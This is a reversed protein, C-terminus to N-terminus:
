LIQLAKLAENSKVIRTASGVPQPSELTNGVNNIYQGGYTTNFKHIPTFSCNVDLIQPLEGGAGEANPGFQYGNNWSLGISSFFGTQNILYDGITVGVFNGRMYSSGVYTPALSGALLNLKDYIPQIENKSLAAVKFSFSIQRGFGSYTYFDEARGIYKFSNWNASYDDGFSDLFARFKLITVQPQANQTTGPSIIKFNFKILDDNEKNDPVDEGLSYVIPVAATISDYPKTKDADNFGVGSLTLNASNTNTKPSTEGSYYSGEGRTEWTGKEEKPSNEYELGETTAFARSKAGPTQSESFYELVLTSNNAEFDGTKEIVGQTTIQGDQRRNNKYEIHGRVGKLYGLKGSFGEVFHLGTGSVPVQALTSALMKATGGLGRLVKGAGTKERNASLINQEVVNLMAQNAVFKLAAPTSTLLKSIRQLDDVRKAGELAIGKLNPPNNIDKTVLPDSSGFDGYTLSKLNTQIDILPM